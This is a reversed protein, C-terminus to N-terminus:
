CLSPDLGCRIGKLVLGACISVNSTFVFTFCRKRYAQLLVGRESRKLVLPHYLSTTELQGESM